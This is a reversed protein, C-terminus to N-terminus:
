KSGSKRVGEAEKPYEGQLFREAARFFASPQEIFHVHGADPILLLRANPMAAAWERTADLPVNTKAGEIVLAPMRLQALLSRFDWDGLSGVVASVVVFRNRLSAPPASCIRESRGRTFAEPNVLYPPSSISFWEHCLAIAEADTAKSLAQRIENSRAVGASGILADIKATREEAFPTKAPPMPSVLMLRDVRESHEATYLVALGSGWSLGIQPMRRLGFHQRLAELDRVHYEPTLMKPDTIIESRGGGRQDYMILTRGEALPEMDYGGDGMNLGPGGHLFVIVSKGRGVKRYFLRVGGAGTFYGETVRSKAAISHKGHRSKNGSAQGTALCTPLLIVAVSVFIARMEDGRRITSSFRTM